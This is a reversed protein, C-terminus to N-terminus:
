GPLISIEFKTPCLTVVGHTDQALLVAYDGSAVGSVTSSVRFGARSASEAKLVRAVDPRNGGAGAAIAYTAADSKLVVFVREPSEKRGNVIWGSAQLQGAAPVGVRGEGPSQGNLRDL